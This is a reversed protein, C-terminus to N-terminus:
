LLKDMEAAKAAQGTVSYCQKLEYAWKQPEDPVCERAKEFYPIAEGFMKKTEELTAKAKAQNKISNVTANKALAQRFKCLGAQYWADYYTPDIETCKIYSTLAEDYKEQAFYIYGKGYNAILVNPDVALIEDAYAMMKDLGLKQNYSLLIQILEKNKQPEKVTIDHVAKAWAITDKRELYSAIKAQRTGEAGEEFQMALDYYKDMVDYLKADHALHFAYYAIQAESVRLKAMDAIEPYKEKYSIARDYSELATEYRGCAAEFQAAYIYYDGCMALQVQKAKLQAENGMEGKTVKTYKLENHLGDTLCKLNNYFYATDFPIKNSAAELMINLPHLAFTTSLAYTEGLKKEEILGSKIPKQIIEQGKKCEELITEATAKKEQIQANLDDWVKQAQKVQDKAEKQAAKLAAADAKAKAKEEATQAMVNGIALTLALMLLIRKM